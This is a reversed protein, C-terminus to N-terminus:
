IPEPRLTLVGGSRGAVLRQNRLTSGVAVGGQGRWAMVLTDV